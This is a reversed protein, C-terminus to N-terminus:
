RPGALRLSVPSCDRDLCEAHSGAVHKLERRCRAHESDCTRDLATGAVGMRQSRDYRVAAAPLVDYFTHVIGCEDARFAAPFVALWTRQSRPEDSFRFSNRAVADRVTNASFAPNDIRWGGGRHPYAPRGPPRPVRREVPPDLFHNSPALQPPSVARASHLAAM